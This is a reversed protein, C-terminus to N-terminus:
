DGTRRVVAIPRDVDHRGELPQELDWAKWWGVFEFDKRGELFFLFEQPYIARRLAETVYSGKKGQDNVELTLVERCIQEVRDENTSSFQVDVVIGNREEQWADAIDVAPVFDICWDLLYLGGPALAHAMADFHRRLEDTSKVYLSGLLVMAFDAPADLRFDVLNGQVFDAAGGLASARQRAFTLMEPACDLGVYALGAEFLPGLHPAQGCAVELVRRVERHSHRKMLEIMVAAEHEISRFSFAIDYYEPATYVPLM